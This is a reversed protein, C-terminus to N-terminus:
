WHPLPAACKGPFHMRGLRAPKPCERFRRNAPRSGDLTKILSTQQPNHESENAYVVNNTIIKMYFTMYMKKFYTAVLKNWPKNFQLKIRKTNLATGYPVMESLTCKKAIQTKKFLKAVIEMKWIRLKFREKGWWKWNMVIELYVWEDIIGHNRWMIRNIPRWKSLITNEWPM